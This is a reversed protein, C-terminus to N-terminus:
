RRSRGRSGRRPQDSERETRFRQTGDDRGANAASGHSEAWGISTDAAVACHSETPGHVLDARDAAADLVASEHELRDIATIAAVAADSWVCKVPLRSLRQTSKADAHQVLM